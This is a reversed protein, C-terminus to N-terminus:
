DRSRHSKPSWDSLWFYTRMTENFWRKWPCHVCDGSTRGKAEEDRPQTQLTLLYWLPAGLDLPGVLGESGETMKLWMWAESVREVHLMSM